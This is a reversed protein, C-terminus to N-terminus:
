KEMASLLSVSGRLLSLFQEASVDSRSGFEVVKAALVGKLSAEAGAAPAPLAAAAEEGAPRRRKAPAQVDAAGAGARKAAAPRPAPAAAAAGAGAAASAGGAAEVAPAAHREVAEALVRRLAAYNAEGKHKKQFLDVVTDGWMDKVDISAGADILMRAMATQAKTGSYSQGHACAWLIAACKYQNDRRNVWGASLDHHRSSALLTRVGQVHGKSVAYALLPIRYTKGAVKYVVSSNPPTTKLFHKLEADDRANLAAVVAIPADPM